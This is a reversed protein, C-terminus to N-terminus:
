HRGRGNFDLPDVGPQFDSKRVLHMEIRTVRNATRESLEHILARTRSFQSAVFWTLGAAAGAISGIIALADKITIHLTADSM